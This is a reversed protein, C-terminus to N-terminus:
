PNHLALLWSYRKTVAAVVAVGIFLMSLICIAMLWHLRRAALSFSAALNDNASIKM